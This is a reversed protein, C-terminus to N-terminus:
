YSQPPPTEPIFRERKWHIPPYSKPPPPPRLGARKDHNPPEVSYVVKDGIVVVNPLVVFMVIVLSIALMKM